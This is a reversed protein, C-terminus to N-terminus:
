KHNQKQKAFILGMHCEGQTEVIDFHESLLSIVQKRLEQSHYELIIRNIIALTRQAGELVKIEHGEVDIKCLDIRHINHQTVYTDLTTAFVTFSESKGTANTSAMSSGHNSFIKISENENSVAMNNTNFSEITNLELNELLRSYTNPHPEFCHIPGIPNHSFWSLSCAGINTGIDFCVDGPSPQFGEVKEYCKNIFCEMMYGLDGPIGSVKFLVHDLSLVVNKNAMIQCAKDTTFITQIFHFTFQMFFLKMARLYYGRDLHKFLLIMKALRTM